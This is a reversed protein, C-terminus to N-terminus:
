DGFILEKPNLIHLLCFAVIFAETSIFFAGLTAMGVRSYTIFVQRGLEHDAFGILWVFITLIGFFLLGLSRKLASGKRSELIKTKNLYLTHLTFLMSIPLCSWAASYYLKSVQWTDLFPDIRKIMPVFLEVFKVFANFTHNELVNLPAFLAVPLAVIAPLLFM